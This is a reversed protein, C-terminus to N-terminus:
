KICLIVIRFVWVFGTVVVAFGALAKFNEYKPHVEDQLSNSIRKRSESRWSM